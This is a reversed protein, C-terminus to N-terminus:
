KKKRVKIKGKHKPKKRTVSLSGLKFGSLQLDNSFWVSIFAKGNYVQIKTENDLIQNL